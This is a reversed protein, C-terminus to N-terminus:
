SSSSEWVWQSSIWPLTKVPSLMTLATEYTEIRDQATSESPNSQAYIRQVALESRLSALEFPDLTGAARALAEEAERLLEPLRARDHMFILTNIHALLLRPRKRALEEPLREIFQRLTVVRGRRWADRIHREILDAAREFHNGAFAYEIADRVFRHAYCWESARAYLERVLEGQTENLRRKLAQAFLPHFRHWEGHADLPLIFLDRRLLEALMAEGDHRQTVANCLAPCLRDLVLVHLLYAQLDDPLLRLVEAVVFEFVFREQNYHPGLLGEYALSQTHAQAALTIAIPWGQTRRYLKEIEDSAPALSYHQALLEAIESRTFALHDATLELVRGAARMRALPFPARERTAIVFHAQPPAHDFLHWIQGLLTANDNRVEHFDDLVLLTPDPVGTLCSILEEVLAQPRRANSGPIYPLFQGLIGPRVKDLAAGVHTWFRAADNHGAELTVWAAAVGSANIWRALLTTKGYGAPAELVTLRRETADGLLSYAHTPM